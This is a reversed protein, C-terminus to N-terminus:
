LPVSAKAAMAANVEAIVAAILTESYGIFVRKIQGDRGIVVVYPTGTQGYAASVDGTPDNTIALQLAQLEQAARPFESRKEINIAVVKVRDVGAVRQMAELRPLAMRCPACWSAWFTAVVVKGAYGSVLVRTGDLTTGLMDPADSGVTAQALSTAPLCFTCALTLAAATRRPMHM